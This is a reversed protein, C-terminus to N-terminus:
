ENKDLKEFIIIKNRKYQELKKKSINWFSIITNSKDLLKSNTNLKVVMRYIKNNEIIKRVMLITDINKRDEFIYEPDNLVKKIYNLEQMEIDPHHAKIHEIREDSIIVDDTIVNKYRRLKEKDIKGIYQM